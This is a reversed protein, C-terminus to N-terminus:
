DEELEDKSISIISGTYADIELDIEEKDTRLEIEYLYRGDEEDQEFEMIDGNPYQESVIARAEEASILTNTASDSQQEIEDSRSDDDEEKNNEQSVTNEDVDEENSSIPPTSKEDLQLVEGTEANVELAYDRDTGKISVEYVKPNSEEVLKIEEIQGAYQKAIKEKAEDESLYAEAPSATFINIVFIGGCIILITSVLMLLKKKM